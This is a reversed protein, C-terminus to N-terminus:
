YLLFRPFQTKRFDFTFFRSLFYRVRGGAGTGKTFSGIDAIRKIKERTSCRRVRYYLIKQRICTQSVVAVSNSLKVTYFKTKHAYYTVVSSTAGSADRCPHLPVFLQARMKM